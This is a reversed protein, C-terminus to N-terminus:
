FYLKDPLICYDLLFNQFLGNNDVAFCPLYHKQYRGDMRKNMQRPKQLMRQAGDRTNTQDITCCNYELTNQDIVSKIKSSILGRGYVPNETGVSQCFFIQFMCPYVQESLKKGKGRHISLCFVM